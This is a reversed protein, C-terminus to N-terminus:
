CEKLRHLVHYEQAQLVSDYKAFFVIDFAMYKLIKNNHISISSLVNYTVYYIVGNCLLPSM